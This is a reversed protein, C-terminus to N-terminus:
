STPQTYGSQWNANWVINNPVGKNNNGSYDNADGNLPWWGKLNNLNIPDGGIGEKYLTQLSSSDLSANYIQVDAILGNYPYGTRGPARGIGTHQISSPYSIGSNSGHAQGNIYLVTTTGDFTMAIFSWGSTCINQNSNLTSPGNTVYIPACPNQNGLWGFEYGGAGQSDTKAALQGYAVNSNPPYRPSVWTTITFASILNLSSSNGIDAYSNAGNFQGVYKPILNNCQGALSTQAATRIVQCSGPTATPQLSGLNFIGLSYLSVMVIAIALIAWGYTMLYEMASQSKLDAPM